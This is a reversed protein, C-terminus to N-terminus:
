SPDVCVRCGDCLIQPSNCDNLCGCGGFHCVEGTRCARGCGGCNLPDAKTDVCKGGCLTLRAPCGTDPILAGDVVTTISRDSCGLILLSGLLVLRGANGTM